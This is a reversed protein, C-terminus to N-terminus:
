NSGNILSKLSYGCLASFGGVVTGILTVVTGLSAGSPLNLIGAVKDALPAGGASNWFIIALGWLVAIALSGVAFAETGKKAWLFSCFAAIAGCCWWPGVYQCIGSGIVISLFYVGKSKINEIM